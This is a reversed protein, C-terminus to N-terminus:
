SPARTCTDLGRGHRRGPGRRRCSSRYFSLRFLFPLAALPTRTRRLRSHCRCSFIDWGPEFAPMVCRSPAAAVRCFARPHSRGQSSPWTGCLSPNVAHEGITLTVWLHLRCHLFARRPFLIYAAGTSFAPSARRRPAAERSNVTLLQILTRKSKCASLDGTTTL